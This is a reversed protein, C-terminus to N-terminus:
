KGWDYWMNFLAYILRDAYEISWQEPVDGYLSGQRNQCVLDENTGNKMLWNIVNLVTCHCVNIFNSNPVNYLLCEVFYSPATKADLKGDRILRDRMNKFIRVTPKYIGNTRNNKDAGNEYHQNPFNIIERGNQAFFRIGEVSGYTVLQCVVVDANLPSNAVKISKAGSTVSKKSHNAISNLIAQKFLSFDDFGFLWSANLEVVLDVDSNGHINTHNKYSGQLYEKKTIGTWAINKLANRIENHTRQANVQAGQKSWRELQTNPIGM